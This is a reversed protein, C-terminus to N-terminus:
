RDAKQWNYEDPMQPGDLRIQIADRMQILIGSCDVGAQKYENVIQNLFVRMLEERKGGDYVLYTAATSLTHFEDPTLRGDKGDLSYSM